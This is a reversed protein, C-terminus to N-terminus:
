EDDPCHAPKLDHPRGCAKHCFCQCNQYSGCNEHSAGCGCDASWGGGKGGSITAMQERSITKFRKM